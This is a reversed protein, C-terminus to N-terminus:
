GPRADAREQLHRKCREVVALLAPDDNVGRALAAIARLQEGVRGGRAEARRDLDGVVLLLPHPDFPGASEFSSVHKVGSIRWGKTGSGGGVAWALQDAEPASVAALTGELEGVAGEASSAILLAMRM